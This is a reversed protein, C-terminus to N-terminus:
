SPGQQEHDGAQDILDLIQQYEFEYALDALADALLPDYGHIQEIVQRVAQVDARITTHKLGAVLSVPLDALAAAAVETFRRATADGRTTVPPEALGEQYVYRVKLHKALTEFIEEQRFPKRVFDDCGAALIRERDREFASATLAIIVPPEGKAMAKIRQTAQYGDMTPMRMDMWILHPHWSRALEIAQQGDVAEQMEFGLPALLAILLHRTADQDDAVLIRYTPQDPALAVVQRVSRARVTQVADPAALGVEIDFHFRSGQGLQSQVSLEGGMLQVFQRSITLGLGTGEQASRGTESQVFADFITLLEEPAIGPGTDQVEFHLTRRQPQSPHAQPRATVRLTVSGETTFKVANGLLNGLVQALKGEDTVIYQPVNADRTFTLTLGKQDARLRFEDELSDLQRHLDYSKEQLTVKGAEIKSMELVDNILALLHEGSRNIIGLYERHQSSLKPDRDMLQSFGLIANLPTRLEHSMNALFATKAQSAAEADRRARQLDTIDHYIAVFGVREGSVIVPLSLLDVDVLSGDKRTRRVTARVRGMTLVQNTYGVAEARISPDNAVVEDLNRGIVQEPTYGFLKEAMPNWSVIDGKLDATVVAVPNNVFLAEYYEKRRLIELEYQKRRTIDEFSGEYYLVQGQEDRVVRATDNIWIITGDRRYLRTEFDRVIGEQEILLQWQARDAPDVYLDATDIAMLAEQQDAYGLMQLAAQNLVMPKGDPRSRYLAIPVGDFLTRYREESQRLEATRAAVLEELHEQYARLEAEARKRETIDEISGEYYLTHGQADKVARATDNVWIVTGDYRRFRVQFDRVLGHEEMLARWKVRDEPEEYLMASNVALLDQRSPYGLMQVQCLNTDIIRGEPTTRYLGAPVGDFLTRYREESAQLDGTREAVLDELHQQYNRLEAQAQTREAIEQQAKSYLRANEIAISAQHAFLSLLHLDDPTFRRAPDTSVSTFVGVLRAGVKLPVALTAHIHAYQPLGGEWVHYDDIVLPEATVAVRGMAGEGLAHRGGVYDQGLNHSVVIRLDQQAEDYLALEGGTAGLLRAAREVIAQLLVPLELEATIDALTRHLADLEDARKRQAALLRAKGIAMGAQQAAATLVELDDQDFAHTARSEAVLVAQVEGAIRVPVDVESGGVGYEYRPEQSVDPTYHLQGDLLPLESLGRGPPLYPPPHDFGISFTGVRNGTAPDVLLLEVVDYGLTDHLGQVVRRHIESEELTATLEASLRFLAAQRRAQARAASLLRKREERAQERETFSVPGPSSPLGQKEERQRLNDGQACRLATQLKEQWAAAELSPELDLLHTAQDIATRLQGAALQEVLSLQLADAVAHQLRLRERMMWQEFTPMGRTSFGQLFAGRYLELAEVTQGARLQEELVRVDLWVAAEPNLAVTDATVALDNGLHQRLSTIASGLNRKARELRSEPWLLEAAAQRDVPRGICALYVLLAQTKRATHQTLLEGHRRISLRGLTTLELM